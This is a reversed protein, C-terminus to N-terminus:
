EIRQDESNVGTDRPFNERRLAMFEVKQSNLSIESNQTENLICNTRFNKKRLSKKSKQILLLPFTLLSRISNLTQPNTKVKGFELQSPSSMQKEQRQSSVLSKRETTLISCSLHLFAEEKIEM